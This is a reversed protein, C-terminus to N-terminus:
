QGIALERKGTIHAYMGINWPIDDLLRTWIHVMRHKILESAVVFKRRSIVTQLNFLSLSRSSFNQFRLQKFTSKVSLRVLWTGKSLSSLIWFVAFFHQTIIKTYCALANEAKMVSPCPMMNAYHLVPGEWSHADGSGQYQVQENDQSFSAALRKQQKVISVKASPKGWNRKLVIIPYEM